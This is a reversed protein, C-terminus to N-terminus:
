GLHYKKVMRGLRQRSIGLLRAAETQNYRTMELTRSVHQVEIEELTQWQSLPADERADGLDQCPSTSFSTAVAQAATGSVPLPEYLRKALQRPLSDPGVLDEDSFIAARELVNQLERVNGPWDYAQLITILEPSLRKLPLGRELVIRALFHQALVEIDESRQKIPITDFAVVNLRHYFDLRFRGDQVADELNRNTASIIRVDVKTGQHTGVPIVTREQIVRLLKTQLESKLEGVEDLFITGGEAARFCGLANHNAGTFAGEVHGFLQSTWLSDTIAACDVPVFPRDARPSNAHIARAILEKGTGSPGTILVSASHAAVRAIERRIGNAWASVGIISNSAGASGQQSSMAFCEENATSDWHHRGSGGGVGRILLNDGGQGPIGIKRLSGFCHVTDVRFVAVEHWTTNARVIM